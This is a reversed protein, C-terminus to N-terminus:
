ELRSNTDHLIISQLIEVDLSVVDLAYNGAYVFAFHAIKFIAKFRGKDVDANFFIGEEM